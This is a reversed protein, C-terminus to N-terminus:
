ATPSVLMQAVFLRNASFESFALNAYTKNRRVSDILRIFDASGPVLSNNIYLVNPPVRSDLQEPRQRHPLVLQYMYM